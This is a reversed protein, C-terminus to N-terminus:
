QFLSYMTLRILSLMATMRGITKGASYVLEFDCQFLHTTTFQRPRWSQTQQLGRKVPRNMAHYVICELHEHIDVRLQEIITLRAIACVPLLSHDNLSM